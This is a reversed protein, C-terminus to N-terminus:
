ELIGKIAEFIELSPNQTFFLEGTKKLIEKKNTQSNQYESREREHFQALVTTDVKKFHDGKNWARWGLEVDEFGYLCFSPSFPGHNLFSDRKMGICFTSFYKWGHPIDKWDKTNEQFHEFYGGSRSYFNESNILLQEHPQLVVEEKLHLRKFQIFDAKLLEKHVIDIFNTPVLMDADLFVIYKGKSHHFGINRAIGARYTNDGMKRYDERKLRLLTLDYDSIELPPSSGDDVIIVEMAGKNRFLEKLTSEIERQHNFHPIIISVLPSTKTTVKIIEVEPVREKFDSLRKDYYLGSYTSKEELTSCKKKLNERLRLVERSSNKLPNILVFLSNKFEQLLPTIVHIDDEGEIFLQLSSKELMKVTPLPTERSWIILPHFSNNLIEEFRKLDDSHCDYVGQNKIPYKCNYSQRQISDQSLPWPNCQDQTLCFPHNCHSFVNRRPIM